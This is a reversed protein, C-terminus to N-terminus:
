EHNPTLALLSFSPLLKVVLGLTSIKLYSIFFMSHKNIWTQNKYLPWNLTLKPNIIPTFDLESQFCNLWVFQDVVFQEKFGM